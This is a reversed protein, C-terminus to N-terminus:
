KNSEVHSIRSAEAAVDDDARPLRVIITTGRSTSRSSIEGQHADIITKSIALGMGMGSPKTTFFPEFLQEAVGPALGPGTDSIEIVAFHEEIFTSVTTVRQEIPLTQMAEYANLLVNCLVQQIAIPDLMLIPSPRTIQLKVQAKLRRAEMGVLDIAEEVLLSINTPVRQSQGKSVYARIRKIVDAARTVAKCIDDNWQRMQPVPLPSSSALADGAAAAYNAIAYLPQNVEHAIGAVLEGMTSLRAVHCMEAFQRQLKDAAEQRDTVDEAVGVLKRVVGDPDVVPFRRDHVWRITGDPRIIRFIEDFRTTPTWEIPDLSEFRVRQRDEVHITTAVEKAPGFLFEPPRGWVAAFAPSVYLVKHNVLDYMWFVDRIHEAMQRFRQEEDALAARAQEHEAMLQWERLVRRVLQPMDSLTTASKTVYDLAGAKISEVAARESGQSTLIITPFRPPGVDSSLLETGKGDPLAMDVIAVTPQSKELYDRAKALNSCVELRYPMGDSEFARKVLAVHAPEDELLLIEIPDHNM